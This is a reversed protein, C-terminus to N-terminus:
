GGPAGLLLPLRDRYTRTLKLEAGDQLVVAYEGRGQSRLTQVRSVNVITSRHIRVFRAPDLRAAVEGLGERLPLTRGRAHIRVYNGAGEVYCVDDTRVIEIRGRSPVALRVPYRAPGPPAPLAASRGLGLAVVAVGPPLADVAEAWRGATVSDRVYVLDPRERRVTRALESPRAVGAVVDFTAQRRLAERLHSLDAAGDAAAVTRLPRPAM